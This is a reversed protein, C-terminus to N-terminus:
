ISSYESVSCPSGTPHRLSAILHCVEQCRLLDSIQELEMMPDWRPHNRVHDHAYFCFVTSIPRDIVQSVEVKM